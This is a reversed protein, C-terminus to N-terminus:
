SEVVEVGRPSRLRGEDVTEKHEERSKLNSEGGGELVETHKEQKSSLLLEENTLTKGLEVVTEQKQSEETSLEIMKEVDAESKEVLAHVNVQNEGNANNIGKEINGGGSSVLNYTDKNEQDGELQLASFKNQVQIEKTNHVQKRSQEMEGNQNQQVKQQNGALVLSQGAAPMAM